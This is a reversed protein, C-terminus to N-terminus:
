LNDILINLDKLGDIAISFENKYNNTFKQANNEVELSNYYFITCKVNKDATLLISSPFMLIINDNGWNSILIEGPIDGNVIKVESVGNFNYNTHDRPHKKVLIKKGKYHNNIYQETLEQYKKENNTFDHLPSTFFILDYEWFSVDVSFTRKLLENYLKQEANNMAFLKRISAYNRYKMKEPHSSFKYCYKTDRIGYSFSPNAYGMKALLFGIVQGKEKYHKFIYGKPRDRFDGTGDELVYIKKFKANAIIAGTLIGYDSSVVAADYDIRGTCDAVIKECFKRRRGVLFNLVMRSFLKVKEKTDMIKFHKNCVIVDEFIGSKRCYDDMFSTCEREGFPCCVAVWRYAQGESSYFWLFEQLDRATYIVALGTPKKENKM